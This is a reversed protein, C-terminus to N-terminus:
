WYKSLFILMYTWHTYFGVHEFEKCCL